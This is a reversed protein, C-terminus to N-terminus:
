EPYSCINTVIYKTFAINGYNNTADVTNGGSVYITNTEPRITMGFGIRNPPMNSAQPSNKIGYTGQQNRIDSGSLWTWEDTAINYSWLDNMYGLLCEFLFMMMLLTGKIGSSDDAFGGFLYLVNTTPHLVMSHRYRSGPYNATSPTGKTGYVGTQDVVNSGSIWAWQRRTVNYM